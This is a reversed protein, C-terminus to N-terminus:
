ESLERKFSEYFDLVFENKDENSDFKVIDSNIVNHVSKMINDKFEEFDKLKIVSVQGKDTMMTLVEPNNM